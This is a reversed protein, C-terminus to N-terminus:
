VIKDMKEEVGVRVKGGDRDREKSRELDMLVGKQLFSSRVMVNGSTREHQTPNM